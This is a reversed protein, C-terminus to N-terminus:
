GQGVVENLALWVWYSFFYKVYRALQEETIKKEKSSFYM